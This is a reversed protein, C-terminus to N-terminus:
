LYKSIFSDYNMNPPYEVEKSKRCNGEFLDGDVRNLYTDWIKIEEETLAHVEEKPSEHWKVEEHEKKCIGFERDKELIDSEDYTRKLM